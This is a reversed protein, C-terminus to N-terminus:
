DILSCKINEYEDIKQFLVTVNRAIDYLRTDKPKDKLIAAVNLEKEM